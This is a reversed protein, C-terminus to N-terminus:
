QIDDESWIYKRRCLRGAAAGQFGEDHSGSQDYVIVEDARAEASWWDFPRPVM